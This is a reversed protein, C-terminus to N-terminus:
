LRWGDPGAVAPSSGPLSACPRADRGHRDTAQRRSPARHGRLRSFLEPVTELVQVRPEAPAHQRRCGALDRRVKRMAPEVAMNSDVAHGDATPLSDPKRGRGPSPSRTRPVTRMLSFPAERRLRCGSRPGENTVGSYIPVRFQEALAALCREAEESWDGRRGPAASREEEVLCLDRVKDLLSATASDSAKFETAIDCPATGGPSDAVRESARM